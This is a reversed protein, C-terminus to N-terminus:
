RVPAMKLKRSSQIGHERTKTNVANDDHSNMNFTFSLYKTCCIDELIICDIWDLM